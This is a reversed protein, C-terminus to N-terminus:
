KEFSGGMYADNQSVEDAMEDASSWNRDLSKSRPALKILSAQSQVREM